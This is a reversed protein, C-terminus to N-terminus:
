SWRRKEFVRVTFFIFAVCVSLFFLVDALDLVGVTFSQYRATFSVGNIIGQLLPSQVISSLSDVLMLAFGVVFGGVAAVVQNETLSSIFTGIAILAAGLLLTGLFHGFVVAWDPPTFFAVIVAFVLTIGIGILYVLLAALYKGMVVSLLSVPATLLAQDTKYKKDESLLRMTLIPIMFISITFLSSFVYSLNTSNAVLTTGFFYFSSLAYYVAIYIYAIPSSFYNRLERRFIAFMILFM